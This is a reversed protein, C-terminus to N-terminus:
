KVATEIEGRHIEEENVESRECDYKNRHRELERLGRGVEDIM